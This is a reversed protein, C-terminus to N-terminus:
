VYYKIDVSLYSLETSQVERSGESRLQSSSVVVLHNARCHDGVTDQTGSSDSLERRTETDGVSVSSEYRM